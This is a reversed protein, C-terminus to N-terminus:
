TLWEGAKSLGLRQIEHHTTSTPSTPDETGGFVLLHRYSSGSTALVRGDPLTTNTPYWRRYALDPPHPTSWAQSLPDFIRTARIGTGFGYDDGGAVLLRGDALTSHGACFINVGPDPLAASSIVGSSPYANCDTMGANWLHLGGNLRDEWSLILSHAASGGPLLAVHIQIHGWNAGTDNHHTWKGTVNPQAVSSTVWWAAAFFALLGVAFSRGLIQVLPAVSLLVPRLVRARMAAEKM